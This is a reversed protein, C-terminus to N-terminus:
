FPISEDADNSGSNDNSEDKSSGLFHVNDAVVTTRTYKKGSEEDEKTYTELHGEVGVLHGKKKYKLVNDATHKFATCNFFDVRENKGKRNVAISFSAVTYDAKTEREEPNRTLNGILITRNV